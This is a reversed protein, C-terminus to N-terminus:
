IVLLFFIYFQHRILYRLNSFSSLYKQFVPWMKSLVDDSIQSEIEIVPVLNVFRDQTYRDLYVIESFIFYIFILFFIYIKLINSVDVTCMGKNTAINGRLVRHLGRM